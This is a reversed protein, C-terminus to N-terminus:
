GDRPQQAAVEELDIAAGVESVGSLSPTARTDVEVGGQSTCAERIVIRHEALAEAYTEAGFEQLLRTSGEVDTFPFFVIGAVILLSYLAFMTRVIGGVEARLPVVRGGSM